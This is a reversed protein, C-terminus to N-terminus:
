RAPVRTWWNTRGAAAAGTCTASSGDRRQRDNTSSRPQTAPWWWQRGLLTPAHGSSRKPSGWSGNGQDIMLYVWSDGSNIYAIHPEDSADLALDLDYTEASEDLTWTSWVGAFLLAYRLEGNPGSYAIHISGNGGIAISAAGGCGATADVVEFQWEAGDHWAHVLQDGGYALHPHGAADAAHGLGDGAYWHPADITEFRWQQGVVVAPLWVMVILACVLVLIGSSGGREM